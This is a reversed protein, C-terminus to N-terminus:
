YKFLFNLVIEVTVFKVSLGGENEVKKMIEIAKKVDKQSHHQHHHHHEIVCSFHKRKWNERWRVEWRKVAREKLASSWLSYISSKLHKSIQKKQKIMVYLFYKTWRAGGGGCFFLYIPFYISNPIHAKSANEFRRCLMMVM